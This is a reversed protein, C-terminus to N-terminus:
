QTIERIKKLTKWTTQFYMKLKKVSKYLAQNCYGLDLCDKVFDLIEIDKKFCNIKM